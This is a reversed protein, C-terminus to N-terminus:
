KKDNFLKLFDNILEKEKAALLIQRNKEALRKKNMLSTYDKELAEALKDTKEKIWNDTTKKITDKKVIDNINDVIEPKLSISKNLKILDNIKNETLKIFKDTLTKNKSETLSISADEVLKRIQKDNFKRITKDIDTDTYLGFMRKYYPLLGKAFYKINSEFTELVLWLHKCILNERKKDRIRPPRKEPLGYISQLHTLNFAPGWFCNHLVIGASVYFNHDNEIEIDYVEEANDLHIHEINIIKHNYTLFKEIIEKKNKERDIVYFEYDKIAKDFTKYVTKWSRNTKYIEYNNESLEANACIMRDFTNFINGLKVSIIHYLSKNMEANNKTNKQSVARIVNNRFQENKWNNSMIDSHKKRNIPNNVNKMLSLLMKERNNKWTEKFKNSYFKRNNKAWSIGADNFLKRIEPHKIHCARGGNGKLKKLKDPEFKKMYELWKNLGNNINKRNSGILKSHYLYHEKKDMFLLNEPTNDLKNFNIHHVVGNNGYINNSYKEAVIRHVTKSKCNNIINNMIVKKYGHKDYDFYIPMLSDGINLQKAQIDNGNRTIYYHEPTTIIYKNNDLTIKILDNTKKSIWIKNIKNVTPNNNKDVSYVYNTIGNNYDDYLEAITKTTNNVLDIKTNKELCFAPCDCRIKANAYMLYESIFNSIEEDSLKLLFLVFLAPEIKKYDMLKVTQNYKKNSTSTKTSFQVIGDILFKYFVPKGVKIYPKWSSSNLHLGFSEAFQNKAYEILFELEAAVIPKKM